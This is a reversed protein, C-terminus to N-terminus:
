KTKSKAIAATAGHGHGGGGWLVKIGLGIFVSAVGMWQWWHVAHKYAIISIFLTIMKRTVTVTVSVLSGFEDIISYIFVQGVANSFSFTLLDRIIAPYTTLFRVTYALQSGDERLVLDSLLFCSAFILSWINVMAMMYYPSVRSKQYIRDQEANTFGDILLNTAAMSLGRVEQFTFSSAVIGMVAQIMMWLNDRAVAAELPSVKKNSQGGVAYSASIDYHGGHRGGEGSAQPGKVMFLMVGCSILAVAVYEYTKYRVGNVVAGVLMVPLLKCNKVLILLPYSIDRLSMYGIPSAITNSLAPRWFTTFPATTGKTLQHLILGVIVAAAAMFANLAAMANFRGPKADLDAAPKYATTTVREQVLGWYIFCVYIGLAKILLRVGSGSEHPQAKATKKTGISRAAIAAATANGGM